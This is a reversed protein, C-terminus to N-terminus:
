SAKPGAQPPEFAHRRATLALDPNDTFVGDVGLGFCGKYTIDPDAGFTFVHVELQGAHAQDILARATPGDDGLRARDVGIGVAYQRIKALGAPQVVADAADAGGVLQIEPVDIMRHVTRLSTSDFSEVYVRANAGTLRNRELADTLRPEPSLGLSTFYAPTKLELYLGVPRDQARVLEIIEQLTPIVGTVANAHRGRSVAHLTRLEALTFDETFWGTVTVGNITKTRQRDAFEPRHAVDTTASLENEHRAVLADDSTLVLDAEIYDAGQAIALRYSDLTEEPRYAAAGRHGIILPQNHRGLTAAPPAATTTAPLGLPASPDIKPSGQVDPSLRQASGHSGSPDPKVARPAAELRGVGTPEAAGPATKWSSEEQASAQRMLPPAAVTLASVGTAVAGVVAATVLRQRRVL